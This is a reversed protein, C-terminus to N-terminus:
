GDRHWERVAERLGEEAIIVLALAEPVRQEYPHLIATGPEGEEDITHAVVLWGTVMEVGEEIAGENAGTQLADSILQDMRHQREEEIM